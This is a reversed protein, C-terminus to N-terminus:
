GATPQQFGAATLVIALLAKRGAPDRADLLPLERTAGAAPDPPGNGRGSPAAGQAAALGTLARVKGQPVRRVELTEDLADLSRVCLLVVDARAAGGGEMVVFHLGPPVLGLVDPLPSPPDHRLVALTQERGQAIVCLAGADYLNRSDRGRPDLDLRGLHSSKVAAVRFGDASLDAVLAAAVTTKGSNKLGLVAVIFPRAPPSQPSSAM